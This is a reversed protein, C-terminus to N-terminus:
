AAARRDRDRRPGDTIEQRWRNLRRAIRLFRADDGHGRQLADDAERLLPGLAEGLGRTQGIRDLWEVQERSDIRGPAHLRRAVDRQVAAVYRAFVDGKVGGTELLGAANDILAAKGSKFPRPVPLPAGFRGAAAWMLVAIAVLAQASVVVFPLRVAARWLSPHQLFGHHTEDVVVAGGPPRLSNILAVALAANEGRALGHNALIDPDSLVWIRRDGRRVAGVLIGADSAVIPALSSNVILQPGAIDPTPGLRNTTWRIEGDLRRIGGNSDIPSLARDVQGRAVLDVARLWGPQNKSPIGQRKPLVYLINPAELLRNFGPETLAQVTPEAIVLVSGSGAKEASHFRSVVVPIEFQKLTEIL